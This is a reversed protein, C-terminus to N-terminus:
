DKLIPTVTQLCEALVPGLANGVDYGADQLENLTIKFQDAPDLTANFTDEVSGLNEDLSAGLEEFNLKGDKCFQALAPGAKSGFLDVAANYADASTEANLMTNQLESLAEKMTKGESSANTLAKKLGTMVASTDVESTECQGLFTAADAASMGLEKLAAANSVILQSLSDM